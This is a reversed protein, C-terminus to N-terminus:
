RPGNLGEQERAALDPRVESYRVVKDLIEQVCKANEPKKNKLLEIGESRESMWQCLM